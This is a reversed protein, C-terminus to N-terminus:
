STWGWTNSFPGCGSLAQLPSHLRVPWSRGCFVNISRFGTGVPTTIPAKLACKTRRISALVSDPIPDRAHWSM